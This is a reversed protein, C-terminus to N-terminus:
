TAQKENEKAYDIVKLLETEIQKSLFEVTDKIITLVATCFKLVQAVIKFPLVLLKVGLTYFIQLLVKLVEM